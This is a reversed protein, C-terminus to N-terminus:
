EFGYSENCNVKLRMFLNVKETKLLAEAEALMRKFEEIEPKFSEDVDEVAADEDVCVDEDFVLKQVLGGYGGEEADKLSQSWIVVGDQLQYQKGNDLKPAHVNFIECFHYDDHRDRGGFSKVKGLETLSTFHTRTTANKAMLMSDLRQISNEVTSHQKRNEHKFYLSYLVGHEYEKFYVLDSGSAAQMVSAPINTTGHCIFYSRKTRQFFLILTGGYMHV